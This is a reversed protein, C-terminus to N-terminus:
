TLLIATNKMACKKLTALVEEYTKPPNKLRRVIKNVAESVLEKDQAILEVVFDDPHIATTGFASLSETPFDKLNATVIWEAKSTIATTLVHRDDADPLILTDEILKDHIVM